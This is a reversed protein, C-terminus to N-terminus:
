VFRTKNKEYDAAALSAGTRGSVTLDDLLVRYVNVEAASTAGGANFIRPNVGAPIDLSGSNNYTNEVSLVGNIYMRSKSTAGNALYEVAVQMVSGIPVWLGLANSDVAASINNTSITDIGWQATYPTSPLNFGVINPAGSVRKFWCIFMFNSIGAELKFADPLQIKGTSNTSKIGGTTQSLGAIDTVIAPLGGDVLNTFQKSLAIAGGDNGYTTAFDFMGRTGLGIISDRYLKPLTGAYTAGNNKQVSITSM